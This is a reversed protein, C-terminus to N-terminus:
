NTYTITQRTLEDGANFRYRLYLMKSEPLSQYIESFDLALFDALSMYATYSSGNDLSYSVPMDGDYAATVREIGKITGDSMDVHCEMVQQFPLAVTHAVVVPQLPTEIYLESDNWRHLKPRSLALIPAGDSLADMGYDIMNQATIESISLQNLTGDVINYFTGENEILWKDHWPPKINAIEYASHFISHQENESYFTVYPTEYTLAAYGYEQSAKVSFSGTYYSVPVQVVHIMIDGTDFFVAEWEQWDSVNYQTYGRWRIKMFRVFNFLTGTEYYLYFMKCDRRNFKIQEVVSGLGLWSNGSAQMTSATQGNFKVWEPINQITYANDDYGVNNVLVTMNAKGADIMAQVSNYNM